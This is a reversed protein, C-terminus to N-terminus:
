PQSQLPPKYVKRSRFTSRLKSHSQTSYQTASTSTSSSITSLTWLLLGVRWWLRPVRRPPRCSSITSRSWPKPRISGKLSLSPRCPPRLSSCKIGTKSPVTTLACKRSMVSPMGDIISVQSWRCGCADAGTARRSSWASSKLSSLKSHTRSSSPRLNLRYSIWCSWCTASAGLTSPIPPHTSISSLQATWTSVGSARQWISSMAKYPKWTCIPSTAACGCPHQQHVTDLSTWSVSRSNPNLNAAEAWSATWSIPNWTLKSTLTSCLSLTPTKTITVTRQASSLGYSQTPSSASCRVCM